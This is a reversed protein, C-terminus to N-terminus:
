TNNTIILLIYIDIRFILEGPKVYNKGYFFSIAMVVEKKKTTM